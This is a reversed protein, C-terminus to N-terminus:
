LNGVVIKPLQKLIKEPIKHLMIQPLLCYGLMRLFIEKSKSINKESYM